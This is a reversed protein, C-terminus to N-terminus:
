YTFLQSWYKTGNGSQVYGVGIYKYNKNLINARHGESNMWAEMVAEPSKQGWAINEGCGRYSIGAEKLVSAFSSGNPRTHSFSTIIENARIQAAQTIQSDLTVPSLGQKAREANVLEVIRNVYESQNTTTTGQKDTKTDADAKTSTDTKTSADPKTDTKTGTDPKTNKEPKANTEPAAADSRTNGDPTKM